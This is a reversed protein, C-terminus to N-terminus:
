RRPADALGIRANVLGVGEVRDISLEDAVVGHSAALQALWESLRDFSAAELWVNVRGENVPEVRKLAGELGAERASQDALALLSRGGRDLLVRSGDAARASLRPAAAVMWALDAERTVVEAALDRRARALPDWAFAWLLVAGIVLAGFQVVRRDRPSLREFWGSM